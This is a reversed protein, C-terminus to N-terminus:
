DLIEGHTYRYNWTWVSQSIKNTVVTIDGIYNWIAYVFQSIINSNVTGTYGWVSNAAQTYNMADAYYTLSRNTYNWVAISIDTTNVFAVAPATYTLNRSNYNWVNTPVTDVQDNINLGTSSIVYTFSSTKATNANSCRVLGNYNGTISTQTPSLTYYYSNFTRTMLSQNIMLSFNQYYTTLTCSIDSTCFGFTTDYCFSTITPTSYNQFANM